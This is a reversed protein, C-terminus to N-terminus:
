NYSEIGIDKTKATQNNPMTQSLLEPAIGLHDSLQYIFNDELFHVGSTAKKDILRQLEGKLMTEYVDTYQELLPLAENKM